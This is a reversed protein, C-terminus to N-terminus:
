LWHEEEVGALKMERALDQLSASRMTHPGKIDRGLRGPKQLRQIRVSEELVFSVQSPAILLRADRVGTPVQGDLLEERAHAIRHAANQFAALPRGRELLVAEPTIM